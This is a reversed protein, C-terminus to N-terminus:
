NRKLLKCRRNRDALLEFLEEATAKAANDQDSVQQKLVSIKELIQAEYPALEPSSVPDSYTFEESLKRLTKKLEQEECLEVINSLDARFTKM